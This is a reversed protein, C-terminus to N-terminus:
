QAPISGPEQAHGLMSSHAHIAPCVIGRPPEIGQMGAGVVLLAVVGGIYCIGLWIPADNEIADIILRVMQPLAVQCASVLASGVLIVPRVEAYFSWLARLLTPKRKHQAASAMEIKWLEALHTAVVRPESETKLTPLDAVELRPGLLFAKRMTPLAWIFLYRSCPGAEERNAVFRTPKPITACM